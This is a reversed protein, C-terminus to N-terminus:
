ISLFHGLCLLIIVKSAYIRIFDQVIYPIINGSMKLGYNTKLFHKTLRGKARSYQGRLRLDVKFLIRASTATNCDM